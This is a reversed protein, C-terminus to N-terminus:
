VWVFFSQVSDFFSLFSPNNPITDPHGCNLISSTIISLRCILAVVQWCHVCRVMRLWTHGKGVEVFLPHGTVTAMEAGCMGKMRYVHARAFASVFWVCM